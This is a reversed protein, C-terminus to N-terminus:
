ALERLERDGRTDPLESVFAGQPHNYGQPTSNQYNQPPPTSYQQPPFNQGQGQPPYSQQSLNQVQSHPSYQGQNYAPGGSYPPVPSHPPPPSGPPSALSPDYSSQSMDYPSKAISSRHDIPVPAFAPPYGQPQFNVPPTHQQM